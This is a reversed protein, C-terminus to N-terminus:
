VLDCDDAGSGGAGRRRPQEGRPPMVDHQQMAIAIHLTMREGLRNRRATPLQERGNAHELRDIRRSEITRGSVGHPPSAAFRARLHKGSACEPVLDLSVHEVFHQPRLCNCSAGLQALSNDFRDIPRM